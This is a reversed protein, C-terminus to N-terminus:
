NVFTEKVRKSKLFYVIWIISLLGGGIFYGIMYSLDNSSFFVRLSELIYLTYLISILLPTRKSKQFLNILVIIRFLNLVILYGLIIVIKLNFSIPGLDHIAMFTHLLNLGGVIVGFLIQIFPFILWGGLKRAIKNDINESPKDESIFDVKKNDM